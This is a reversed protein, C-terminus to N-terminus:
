GGGDWNTWNEAIVCNVLTPASCLCYLGGASHGFNATIRCNVFTANSDCCYVGGGTSAANGTIVCNAITPHSWNCYVGGGYPGGASYYAAGNQITFGNLVSDPTENTHFYIGRGAYGCDIICNVPGNESRVTIARGGFDLNKNGAGTYTGDLVVVEDGSSADIGDQIADFPHAASGDELPDSVAPDGPGPDSSADDDVYIIAQTPAPATAFLLGGTLALVCLNIRPSQM